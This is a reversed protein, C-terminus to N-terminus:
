PAAPEPEAHTEEVPEFNGLLNQRNAIVRDKQEKTQKGSLVLSSFTKKWNEGSRPSALGAQVLASFTADNSAAIDQESVNTKTDPFIKSPNLKTEREISPINQNSTELLKGINEKKISAPNAKTQLTIPGGGAKLNLAKDVIDAAQEDTAVKGSRTLELIMEARKQALNGGTAAALAKARYEDMQLRTQEALIDANKGQETGAFMTTQAKFRQLMADLVDAKTADEAADKSGLSKLHMNYLNTAEQGKRFLSQQENKQAEVDRDINQQIMGLIQNPGGEHLFGKSLGELGAALALLGTGIVGKNHMYRNPDLKYNAATENMSNIAAQRDASDNYEMAGRVAKDNSTEDLQRYIDENALANSLGHSQQLHGQEEQLQALKDYRGLVAMLAPSLRAGGGATPLQTIQHPRENGAAAAGGPFVVPPIAGPSPPGAPAVAPGASTNSVAPPTYQIPANELEKVRQPSPNLINALRQGFGLPAPPPPAVSLVYSPMANPASTDPGVPNSNMPPSPMSVVPQGWADVEPPPPAPTADVLGQQPFVRIGQLDAGNMYGGVLGPPVQNAM